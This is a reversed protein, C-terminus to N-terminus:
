GKSILWDLARTPLVRKLAGMLYTPTTVYYRPKPRPSELAHVLKKTVASAPLEFTDRGRDEYLRHLLGEYQEKRASCKWDIWREFHPISNVRIKSTVPGPEILIVHIGTGRMEIRLTDTLGELAWKSSVYAGRWQAVVFGLISSNQVIRGHGQKRMVPIVQRTLEHWGFFNAEFVERLGDTPLDEVAGPCAFAGNNFVADLTGGTAELVENLGSAITASDEYDIRPSEFGEDRMRACDAEKRCSAFVRWGRARMGHAADLGIGSSCGTILVSRGAM